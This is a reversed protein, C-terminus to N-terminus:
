GDARGVPIRQEYPRARPEDSRTGVRRKRLYSWAGRRTAEVMDRDERELATVLIIRLEPERELLARM